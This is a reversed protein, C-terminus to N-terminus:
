AGNVHRRIARRATGVIGAYRLFFVLGAALLIVVWTIVRRALEDSDGAGLPSGTRRLSEMATEYAPYFLHGIPIGAAVLGVFIFLGGVSKQLRPRGVPWGIQGVFLLTLVDALVAAPVAAYVFVLEIVTPQYKHGLAEVEGREARLVDPLNVKDDLHFGATAVLLGIGLLGVVTFFTAAVALGRANAEVPAGSCRLRGVLLLLAALGLPVCTYATVVGKWRPWGEKGLFGPGVKAAGDPDFVFWAGHAFACVFV